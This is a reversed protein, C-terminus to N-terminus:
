SCLVVISIMILLSNWTYSLTRFGNGNYYNLEGTPAAEPWRALINDADVPGTGGGASAPRGTAAPLIFHEDTRFGRGREATWM